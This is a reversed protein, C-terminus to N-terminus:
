RPWETTDWIKNCIKTIIAIAEDRGAKFVEIQINDIGPAKGNAVKKMARTIESESISPERTNDRTVFEESLTTDHKYLRLINRGDQKLKRRKM